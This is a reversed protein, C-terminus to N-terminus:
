VNWPYMDPPEGDTRPELHLPHLAQTEDIFLFADYRNPIVTPVYNGYREYDPDYVVGIARHGIPKTLESTHTQPGLILLQDRERARHLVDEWSGTRADPVPMKRMPAGWEYGAIVSGRHSGYGVLVVDDQPHSDRVIEGVNVMGAQAMDTARADGIHTNHEWVIAKAGNGHFRMLRELTEVMHTDRLNWSDPGARVMTRYYQEANRVILANQEAVFREEIGEGTPMKNRLSRLLSVSEEECSKPILSFTSRAYEQMDQGYPEFCRLAQKAIDLTKGDRQELFQVVAQLSEWLSYVDLGFFGVKQEPPRDANYGRMWEALAVIEWNAWMWTPWRDFAALVERANAGLDEGGKVYSNLRYCDPWDGEVAIFSFGKELILRKSLQARSIYYESTGHTAEGLLVYRADGIRTMLPDLDDAGELPLAWESVDGAIAEIRDIDPTAWTERLTRM